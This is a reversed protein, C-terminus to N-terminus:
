EATETAKNFSILDGLIGQEEKSVEELYARYQEGRMEEITRMERTLSLLEGQKERKRQEAEDIAAQLAKLQEETYGAFNSYWAMRPPPMGSRMERRFRLSSEELRRVADEKQANLARLEALIEALEARKQKEQIRKVKLLPALSFIFKKM